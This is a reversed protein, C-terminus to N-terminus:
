LPPKNYNLTSNDNIDLWLNWLYELSANMKSINSLEDTYDKLLYITHDKSNYHTVCPIFDSNISIDIDNNDITKTINLSAIGGLIRPKENQNSVFNGLSYYCISSNGNESVITKVPEVVHPHAGIIIDAGNETFFEAWEIQYDTENYVYENGWHPFVITIDANNEAYQLDNKIKEKDYLTDVLYYKEDPIVFGNLGYTYNLMAISINNKEIIRITEYDEISDHLGLYTVQPHQRFYNVTSLVGYEKKDYSHNTAGLFVDFGANILADGCEIPTGFCPYSSIKSYDDVLVTEQNVIAIDYSNIFDTINEYVFDFNYTNDIYGKKYIPSHYLNDGVAMISVNYIEPEKEIQNSIVMENIVESSITELKVTEKNSSINKNSCGTLLLVLLIFWIKKM